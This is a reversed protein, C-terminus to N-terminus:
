NVIIKYSINTSPGYVKVFYLGNSLYDRRLEVNKQQQVRGKFVTRVRRGMNDYLEVSLDEPQQVSIEFVTSSTFPNPAVLLKANSFDNQDHIGMGTGPKMHTIPTYVSRYIGNYSFSRYYYTLSSDLDNDIHYTKTATLDVLQEFSLTDGVSREIIYGETNESRSWKLVIKTYYDENSPTARFYGAYPIIPAKTFLFSPTNSPINLNNVTAAVHFYDKDEAGIDSLGIVAELFSDSSYSNIRKLFGHAEM